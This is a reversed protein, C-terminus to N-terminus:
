GKRGGGDRARSYLDMLRAYNAEATYKALFESRAEAGMARSEPWLRDAAAALSLPDGSKFHLGTRGDDVIEAGAGIGTSLVPLACGFAEAIVLPFSEYCTSPFVLFRSRKMLDFVEPRSRAGYVRIEGAPRSRAFRDVLDRMPGDGCIALSRGPLSRWADLLVHVGKEVSLRGVFLAFDGDARGAGPDPDVFNPKTVIREEPLGGEIFKRRSFDSLAIFLDVKNRWTGLMRHTELMMTVGATELRSGRYCAHLVGPWLLRKGMCDECPRGSRFFLAAACLLRYNHLTQVVPVGTERCAWYASPSILPFTNHFHAVEPRERHILDRLRSRTRPSWVANAAAAFRGTEQIRSNDELYEEVRHGHRRLLSGEQQFVVDEGGAQRYRNHVLLIM